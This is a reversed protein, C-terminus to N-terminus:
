EGKGLPSLLWNLEKAKEEGVLQKLGEPSLFDHDCYEFGPVVTESILLGQSDKGGEEDPLLYSAKFKGGGVIWQLKEGAAVNQGVIFTEIRKETGEEDAHILVYRGRGRHLTHVTRGKNRHFGGQPGNPTLLYFITTSSNRVTPNFGPRQPALDSTTSKDSGFPSPVVDPARDTEAFFGGEIHPLLNLAKVVEQIQPSSDSETSPNFSPKLTQYNSAM